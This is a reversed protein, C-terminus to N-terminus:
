AEEGERGERERRDNCYDRNVPSGAPREGLYLLLRFPSHTIRMAYVLCRVSNFSGCEGKGVREFVYLDIHEVKFFVLFVSPRQM